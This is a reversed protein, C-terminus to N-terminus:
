SSLVGLEGGATLKVKEPFVRPMDFMLLVKTGLKILRDEEQQNGGSSSNVLLVTHM